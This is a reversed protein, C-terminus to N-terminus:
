SSWIALKVSTPAFGKWYGQTNESFNRLGFSTDRAGSAIAAKVVTNLGDGGFGVRDPATAAYGDLLTSWSASTNNWTVAVAPDIDPVHFLEVPARLRGSQTLDAILFLSEITLGAAGALPIRVFSRWVPGISEPRGVRILDRARPQSTPATWYSQDRWVDNVPTWADAKLETLVAARAPLAAALPATVAAAALGLASRRSIRNM